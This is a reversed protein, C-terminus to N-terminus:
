HCLYHCLCDVLLSNSVCGSIYFCVAVTARAFGLIDSRKVCCRIIYSGIANLNSIRLTNTEQRINWQTIQKKNRKLEHALHQYARVPFLQLLPYGIKKWSGNKYEFFPVHLKQTYQSFITVLAMTRDYVCYCPM